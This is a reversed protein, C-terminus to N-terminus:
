EGKSEAASSDAPATSHTSAVNKDYGVFWGVYYDTKGWMWEKHDRHLIAGSRLWRKHEAQDLVVWQMPTVKAPYLDPEAYFHVNVHSYFFAEPHSTIAGGAAVATNGVIMRLRSGQVIASDRTTRSWHREAGFSVSALMLLVVLGWAARWSRALVPLTRLAVLVAAIMAAGLLLRTHPAKWAALALLITAGALVITIVLVAGRLFEEARPKRLAAICVSGALPCLLVLTPYAYRPNDMGSLVCILWSVCTALVLALSLRWQRADMADSIEYWFFMPLALSVPLAFAIVQPLM